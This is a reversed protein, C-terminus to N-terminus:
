RMVGPLGPAPSLSSEYTFPYDGKPETTVIRGELAYRASQGAALASAVALKGELSPRIVVLVVDASEPGITLGPAVSFRGADQGGIRLGSEVTAFATPVNSFNQLRLSLQWQGDAQVQLQQISARPPNVVKKPGRGSCAVLLGLLAVAVVTQLRMAPEPCSIRELM